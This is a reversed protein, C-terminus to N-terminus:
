AIVLVLEHKLNIVAKTYSEIVRIYYKLTLKGSVCLQNHRNHLVTGRIGGSALHATGLVKGTAQHRITEFM